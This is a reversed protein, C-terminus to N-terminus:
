LVRSILSIPTAIFIKDGCPCKESKKVMSRNHFSLGICLEAWPLARPLSGLINLGSLARCLFYSRYKLEPPVIDDIEWKLVKKPLRYEPIGYRIM